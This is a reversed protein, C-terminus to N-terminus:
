IKKKKTNFTGSRWKWFKNKVQYGFGGGVITSCPECNFVSKYVRGHIKGYNSKLNSLDSIRKIIIYGTKCHVGNLYWDTKNDHM